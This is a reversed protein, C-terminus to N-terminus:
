LLFSDADLAPAGRIVIEFDAVGDGNADGAVIGDAYRLEAGSGSFPDGGIFTFTQQGAVAPDVDMERLDILDTGAQMDRIVDAAAGTGSDSVDVFVFVDAGRGGILTDQGSSGTLLDNGAKGSLLNDGRNGVLRNDAANGTGALNTEGRLELNDVEDPLIFDVSSLVTDGDGSETNIVRDGIHDVVFTDTGTGGFLRDAGAGGDLYDNGEGGFLRDNGDGGFLRDNMEKGSLVDNGGLGRLINSGLNGTIENDSSNGIGTLSTLGTLTLTEVHDPLRFSASSVASDTGAGALELVTDNRNDIRYLDDGRGGLMRDVGTGGDLRDDGDGGFLRDAGDAGVLRDNGAAGKLVNSSANGILRNDLANGTGDIDATGRLTLREVADPLTYSVTSRVLDTGNGAAEVVRDATCDVVYTDNGKGGALRDSGSGGDLLDNGDWAWLRDNGRRGDLTDDGDGTGFVNDFDNGFFNIGDLVAEDFAPGMDTIPEDFTITFHLQGAVSQTVKSIEIIEKADTDFLGYWKEKLTEGAFPGDAVTSTWALLTSTETTLVSDVPSPYWLGYTDRAANTFEIRM